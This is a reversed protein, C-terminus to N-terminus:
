IFKIAEPAPEADPTKRKRLAADAGPRHRRRPTICMALLHPSRAAPQDSSAALAAICDGLVQLNIILCDSGDLAIAM